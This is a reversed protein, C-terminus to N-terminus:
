DRKGRRLHDRLRQYALREVHGIRRERRQIFRALCELAVIQHTYELDGAAIHGLGRAEGTAVARLEVPQELAMRELGAHELATAAFVLLLGGCSFAGRESRRM